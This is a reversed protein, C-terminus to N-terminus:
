RSKMVEDEVPAAASASLVGVASTNSSAVSVVTTASVTVLRVDFVPL